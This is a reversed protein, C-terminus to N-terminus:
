TDTDTENTPVKQFKILSYNNIIFLYIMKTITVMKLIFLVFQNKSIIIRGMERGKIIERM